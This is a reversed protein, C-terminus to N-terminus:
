RVAGKMAHARRGHRLHEPPNANLVVPRCSGVEALLDKDAGLFRAGHLSAVELAGHNGLASAGMWLEWHPALGHHEGHSGLAGWGGEAIIDAMAQAVLPYSYDTVPRTMRVRTHPVLARWPFVAADQWVNSERFLRRHQVPPVPRRSRPSSTAVERVAGDSYMLVEEFAHEPPRGTWSLRTEYFFGGESTPEDGGHARREAM